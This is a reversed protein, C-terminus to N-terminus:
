SQEKERRKAKMKLKALQRMDEVGDSEDVIEVGEPDGDGWIRSPVIGKHREDILADCVCQSVLHTSLAICSLGYKDLMDRRGRIYADNELAKDIEFNDGWCSIELGDFGWASVKQCITELPLDAWQATILTITRAM